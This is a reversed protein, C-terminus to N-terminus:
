KMSSILRTENNQRRNMASDLWFIKCFATLSVAYTREMPVLHSSKDDNLKLVM